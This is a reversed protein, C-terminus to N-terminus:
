ATKPAPASGSSEAKLRMQLIDLASTGHKPAPAPEPPKTTNKKMLANARQLMSGIRTGTQASENALHTGYVKALQDFAAFEEAPLASVSRLKEAASLIHPKPLRSQALLDIFRQTARQAETVNVQVIKQMTQLMRYADNTLYSNMLERALLDTTSPQKASAKLSPHDRKIHRAARRITKEMDHVVVSARTFDHLAKRRAASQRYHNIQDLTEQALERQKYSAGDSNIPSFVPHGFLLNARHKAWLALSVDKMDPDTIAEFHHELLAPHDGHIHISDEGGLATMYADLVDPDTLVRSTDDM